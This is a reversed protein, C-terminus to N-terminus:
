QCPFHDRPSVQVDVVDDTGTCSDSGSSTEATKEAKSKAQVSNETFSSDFGEMGNSDFFTEERDAKNNEDSGQNGGGQEGCLSRSDDRCRSDGRSENQLEDFSSSLLEGILVLRSYEGEDDRTPAGKGGGENAEDKHGQGGPFLLVVVFGVVVVMVNVISMRDPFILGHCLCLRVTRELLIMELNNKKTFFVEAENEGQTRRKYKDEM